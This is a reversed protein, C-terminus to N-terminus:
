VHGRCAADGGHASQAGAAHARGGPAADAPGARGRGLAGLPHLVRRGPAGGLGRWCPGAAAGGRQASHGGRGSGGEAAWAGGM